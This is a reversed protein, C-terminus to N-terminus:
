ITYDFYECTITEGKELFDIRFVSDMVKGASALSHLEFMAWFNRRQNIKLLHIVLSAGM